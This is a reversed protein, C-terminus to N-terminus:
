MADCGVQVWGSRGRKRRRLHPTKPDFAMCSHSGEQWAIAPLSVPAAAPSTKECICECVELQRWGELVRVGAASKRDGVPVVM